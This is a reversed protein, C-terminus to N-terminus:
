MLFACRKIVIVTSHLCSYTPEEKQARFLTDIVIFLLVTGPGGPGTLCILVCRGEGGRRTGGDVESGRRVLVIYREGGGRM